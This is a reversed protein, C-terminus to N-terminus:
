RVLVPITALKSMVVNGSARRAPCNGMGQSVGGLRRVSEVSEM